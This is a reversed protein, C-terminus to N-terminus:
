NPREKETKRNETNRRCEYTLNTSVKFQAKDELKWRDSKEGEGSLRVWTGNTSGLDEVYWIGDVRFLTAHM